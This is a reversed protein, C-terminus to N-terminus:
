KRIKEKCWAIQASWRTIEMGSGGLDDVSVKDVYIGEEYRSSTHYVLWVGNLHPEIRLPRFNRLLAEPPPSGDAVSLVDLIFREEGYACIDKMLSNNSCGALAFLCTAMLAFRKM